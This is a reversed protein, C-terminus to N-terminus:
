DIKVGFPDVPTGISEDRRFFLLPPIWKRNPDIKVGSPDVLTGISEDRRSFLLPSRWKRNLATKVGSPDVPLGISEDRRSFCSPPRILTRVRNPASIKPALHRLVKVYRIKITDYPKLVDISLDRRASCSKNSVKKQSTMPQFKVRVELKLGM